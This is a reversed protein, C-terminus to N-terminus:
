CYELSVLYDLHISWFIKNGEALHIEQRVVLQDVAELYALANVPQVQITAAMPTLGPQTQVVPNSSYYPPGVMAVKPPNITGPGPYEAAM